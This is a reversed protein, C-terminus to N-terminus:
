YKDKPMVLKEDWSLLFRNIESQNLYNVRMLCQEKSTPGDPPYDKQSRQTDHQKLTMKHM